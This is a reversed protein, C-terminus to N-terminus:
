SLNNKAQTYMIIGVKMVLIIQPIENNKIKLPLILNLFIKLNEAIENKIPNTM